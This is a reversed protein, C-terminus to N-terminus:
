AHALSGGDIFITQGNVFDCSESALYVLLGALDTPHGKRRSPLYRLVSENTDQESQPHKSIWGAGIGNVRIGERGWELALSSTFRHIAGEVSCAAVSNWLGRKALNSTMNVIRGYGHELMKTGVLQSCLVMSKFNYKYLTDWETATITEFRKGFDAKANNILCHIQGVSDHAKEVMERISTEDLLNTEITLSTQGGNKVSAAADKMDSDSNGAIILNAGAESLYDALYPTWGRRDATILINKASLDWESLIPM